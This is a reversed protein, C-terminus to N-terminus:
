FISFTLERKLFLLRVEVFCSMINQQSLSQDSTFCLARVQSYKICEYRRLKINHNKSRRQKAPRRSYNVSKDLGCTVHM